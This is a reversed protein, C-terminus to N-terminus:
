FKKETREPDYIGFATVKGGECFFVSQYRDFFLVRVKGDDADKVTDPKGLRALLEDYDSGDGIRQLMESCNGIPQILIRSVRHEDFGVHMKRDYHTYTWVKDSQEAPEGLRFMVESAPSRLSVGALSDVRKPRLDNWRVAWAISAILASGVIVLTVVRKSLRRWDWRDKTVAFLIVLALFALAFAM